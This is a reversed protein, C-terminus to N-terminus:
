SFFELQVDKVASELFKSWTLNLIAEIVIYKKVLV